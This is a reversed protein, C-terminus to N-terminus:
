SLGDLERRLVQRLVTSSTHQTYPLYAVKVGVTAFDSELKDGRDTGQWDDGKIVVDFRLREWMEM